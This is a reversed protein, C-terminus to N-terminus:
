RRTGRGNPNWSRALGRRLPQWGAVAGFPWALCILTRSKSIVAGQRVHYLPALEDIIPQEGSVGRESRITFHTIAQPSFPVLGAIRNADLGHAALWRPDLGVM